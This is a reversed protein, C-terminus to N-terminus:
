MCTSANSPQQYLLHGQDDAIQIGQACIDALDPAADPGTGNTLGTTNVQFIYQQLGTQTINWIYAPGIPSLQGAPIGSIRYSMAALADNLRIGFATVTPLRVNAQM